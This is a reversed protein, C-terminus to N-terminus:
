TFVTTVAAEVVFSRKKIVAYRKGSTLEIWVDCIYTLNADLCATDASLLYILFRGKDTGTQPLLIEIQTDDGGAALNRKTIVAGVDEVRVKVTFWVKCGTLDVPLKTISDKVTVRLTKSEGKTVTIPTTSSTTACTM